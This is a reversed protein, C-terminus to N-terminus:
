AEEVGRKKAIRAAAVRQRIWVVVRPHDFKISGDVDEAFLIVLECLDIFVPYPSKKLKELVPRLRARRAASSEFPPTKTTM